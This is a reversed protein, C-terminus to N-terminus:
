RYVLFLNKLDSTQNPITSTFVTFFTFLCFSQVHHCEVDLQDFIFDNYQDPLKELDFYQNPPNKPKFANIEIATFLSGMVCTKCGNSIKSGSYVMIHTLHLCHTSKISHRVKSFTCTAIVSTYTLSTGLGSMWPSGQRSSFYVDFPTYGINVCAYMSNNDCVFWITHSMVSM